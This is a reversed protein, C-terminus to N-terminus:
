KSGGCIARDVKEAWSRFDDMNDGVIRHWNAELGPDGPKFSELALTMARLCEIAEPRTLGYGGQLTHLLRDVEELFGESSIDPADDSVYRERETEQLDPRDGPGM